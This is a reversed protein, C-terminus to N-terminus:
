AKALSIPHFVNDVHLLKPIPITSGMPFAADTKIAEGTPSLYSYVKKIVETKNTCIGVIAYNTVLCHSKVCFINDCQNNKSRTTICIM